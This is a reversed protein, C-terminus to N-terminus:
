FEDVSVDDEDESEYSQIITEDVVDVDQEVNFSDKATFTDMALKNIKKDICFYGLSELVLYFVKTNDLVVKRINIVDMLEKPIGKDVIFGAPIYFTKIIKIDYRDCYTKIREALDRDEMEDLWLRWQTLNDITTNIKLAAYPPPDVPGYKPEFVETWMIYHKYNSKTGDPNKYAKQDKIKQIRLYEHSGHTIASVIGHEINAINQLEDILSIEEGAIVRKNIQIMKDQAAKMVSRPANSNKLHVGKIEIKRTESTYSNKEQRGIMANYHKAVPTPTFTDFRFENKMAADHIRETSIGLNASMIALTHTITQSALFIMTECIGNSRENFQYSGTKWHVWEQVTFITSDTDSMLVARRIATPFYALSAPVNKTLFFTRIFARYKDLTNMINELTSAVLRYIPEDKRKGLETGAMTDSHIECALVVYDGPARAYVSEPDPHEVDSKRTLDDIFHNMFEDNHIRINYFDGTYLFAALEAPKLKQVFDWIRKEHYEDRWYLRTSRLIADMVEQATPCRMNYLSLTHAIETLNAGYCLSMLNNIVIEPEYYHRNGALVKENNANGYGSTIRCTSTLSTHASPNYMITSATCYGGSVANNSLKNGTQAISYFVQEEPRGEREAKFMLDKNKSRLKKNLEISEVQISEKIAPNIYTTLTPAIIDKNSIATALRRFYGGERKFRDGNQERQTYTAKPDKFEFRGGKKLQQRVYDECVDFPKDFMKSLYFANQESYHKLVNLDRKYEEAPLVFPSIFKM